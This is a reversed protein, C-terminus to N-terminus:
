LGSSYVEAQGRRGNRKMAVITKAKRKLHKLESEEEIDKVSAPLLYIGNDGMRFDRIMAESVTARPMDDNTVDQNALADVTHGWLKVKNESETM